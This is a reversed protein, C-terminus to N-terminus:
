RTVRRMLLDALRWRGTRSANIKVEDDIEREADEAIGLLSAMPRWFADGAGHDGDASCLWHLM